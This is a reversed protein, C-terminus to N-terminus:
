ICLPPLDALEVQLQWIGDANFFEPLEFIDATLDSVIKISLIYIFSGKFIIVPRQSYKDM